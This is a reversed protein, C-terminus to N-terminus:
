FENRAQVSGVLYGSTFATVNYVSVQTDQSAIDIPFLGTVAIM